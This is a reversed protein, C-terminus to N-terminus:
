PAVEVVYEPLSSPATTLVAFLPFPGVLLLSENDNDTAINYVRAITPFAFLFDALCAQGPQYKPIINLIKLLTKQYLNNLSQM